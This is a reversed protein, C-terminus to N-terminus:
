TTINDRSITNTGFDQFNGLTNNNLHNTSVITNQSDGSIHLGGSNNYMSTNGSLINNLGRCYIGRTTNHSVYNSSIKCYNQQNIMIGNNGNQICQNSTVIGKNGPMIGNGGNSKVISNSVVNNTGMLHVGDSGNDLIMCSEITLHSINNGAYLGYAANQKAVCNTVNVCTASGMVNFGNRGNCTCSCTEIIICVTASDVIIGDSACNFVNITDCLFDYCNTIQIGYGGSNQVIITYLSSDGSDEIKITQFSNVVAVSKLTFHRLGRLYLGITSSGVILLNEITIGTYMNQALYTHGSVTNGRYTDVLTLSTDSTISAIIFFNNGILIYQGPLLNTFSTGLGTVVNNNNTISITGANEKVGHTADAKISIAGILVITVQGNAEGIIKGHNPIIIDSTEVYTGNRIYISAKGDAFAAAVSTYDGTGNIDVIADWSKTVTNDKSILTKNKMVQTTNLAAITDSVDPLIITRDSTQAINITAKTGFSGNTVIEVKPDELYTYNSVLNNLAVEESESLVNNFVIYVVNSTRDIRNLTTTISSENQIQETFQRPNFNGGFSINIYYTYTYIM